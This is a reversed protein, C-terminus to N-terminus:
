NRSIKGYGQNCRNLQFTSPADSLYGMSDSKPSVDFPTKVQKDHAGENTTWDNATWWSTLTHCQELVIQGLISLNVWLRGCWGQGCVCRFHRWESSRILLHWSFRPFNRRWRSPTSKRPFPTIWSWENNLTIPSLPSWLYALYSTVLQKRDAAFHSRISRLNSNFTDLQCLTQIIQGRNSALDGSFACMIDASIILNLPAAKRRPEGTPPTRTKAMKETVDSFFIIPLSASFNIVYDRLFPIVNWVTTLLLDYCCILKCFIVNFSGLHNNLACSFCFSSPKIKKSFRTSYQLSRM